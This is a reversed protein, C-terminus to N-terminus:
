IKVKNQKRSNWIKKGRDSYDQATKNEVICHCKRCIPELNDPNNNPKEGKAMATRGRGDKHHIQLRENFQKLHEDNTMGCYTCTKDKIWETVYFGIRQKEKAVKNTERGRESRSYVKRRKQIKEKNLERYEKDKFSKCTKCICTKKNESSVKYVETLNKEQGCYVCNYKAM